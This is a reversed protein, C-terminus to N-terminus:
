DKQKVQRRQENLAAIAERMEAMEKEHKAAAAEQAKKLEAIEAERKKLEDAQKIAVSSDRATELYLKARERFSFPAIGAIMGVRGIQEDSAFAVNEVTYYKLARLEEVQSPRLFPWQSLPTGVQQGESGHTQQFYAWQRPFRRKHDDTAPTEITLLQNGPIRIEVWLQDEFIPRGEKGSKFNNPIPRMSFQVWLLDDPNRAGAFNPNGIDTELGLPRYGPDIVSSM